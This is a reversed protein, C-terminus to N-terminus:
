KRVAEKIAYDYGKSCSVRVARKYGEYYCFTYGNTLEIKCFESDISCTKTFYSRKAREVPGTRQIETEECGILLFMTFLILKM